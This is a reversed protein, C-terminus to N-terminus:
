EYFINISGADFTNTGGTTTIRVRDLSGSLSVFGGGAVSASSSQCGAHSSVWTNATINAITMIAGVTNTAALIRVIFGATSTSTGVISDFGSGTSTYGTSTISGAGIQVLLPDTGNTSVGNLMVTIRKAWSPIGTFDIATGSTSNQATGQVLPVNGAVGNLSASVVGASFFFGTDADSGIVAPSGATGDVGSVGTSGNITVPM